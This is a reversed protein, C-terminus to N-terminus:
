FVDVCMPRFSTSDMVLLVPFRYPLKVTLKNKLKVNSRIYNTPNIQGQM